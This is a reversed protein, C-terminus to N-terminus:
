KIDVFNRDLLRKSVIPGIICTGLSVILISGFAVPSLNIGEMSLGTMMVVLAVEARPTMSFGLLLYHSKVDGFRSPLWVGIIKGIIAIALLMVAPLISDLFHSFSIHITIGIFFFPVIMHYIFDLGSEIDHENPDRSYALGAFFAGVAISFGMESSIYSIITCIGLTTASLLYYNSDQTVLFKSLKIEVFRAFLYCVGGLIFTKILVGFVAQLIESALHEYNGTNIMPAITFLIIMSLIGFIDDLEAMDVLLSGIKTKIKGADEWVSSTVGVSTVSLATGLFLSTILDFKIIYHAVIFSSMGSIVFNSLAFITAQKLQKVLAKIDSRLGVRFLLMMLGFESLVKLQSFNESSLFNSFHNIRNLFLGIAIYGVVPPILSKSMASRLISGLILIIGVILLIQTDSQM